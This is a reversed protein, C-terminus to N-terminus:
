TIGVKEDVGAVLLAAPNEVTRGITSVGDVLVPAFTLARSEDEIQSHIKSRHTTRSNRLRQRCATVRYRVGNEGHDRTPTRQPITMKTPEASNLTFWRAQSLRAERRRIRGHLEAMVM